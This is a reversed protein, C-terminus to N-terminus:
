ATEALEDRRFYATHCRAGPHGECFRVVYVLGDRDGTVRQVTGVEGTYPPDNPKTILVRTQPHLTM